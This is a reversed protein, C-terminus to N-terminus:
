KWQKKIEHIENIDSVINITSPDRRGLGIQTGRKIQDWEFVSKDMYIYDRSKSSSYGGKEAYATFPAIGDTGLYPNATVADAKYVEFAEVAYRETTSGIDGRKADLIVPVETTEHIYEILSKLVDCANEAAFYAIQPKFSSALDKTTDVIETCFEYLATESKQIHEPIQYRRPDLGVCVRSNNKRESASLLEFFNM